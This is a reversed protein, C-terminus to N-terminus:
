CGNLAVYPLEVITIYMHVSYTHVPNASKRYNSAKNIM